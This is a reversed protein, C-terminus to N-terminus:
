PRIVERIGGRLEEGVELVAYTGPAGYRGTGTFSGPNIFLVSGIQEWRPVHTHGSVICDVQEKFERLLCDVLEYRCGMGHLLGITFSGIHIIKKHPLCTRSSGHCMNGHVAHVEKDQFVDLVSIDTLDGAHFIIEVDSFAAVARQRFEKDPRILHTDSLIGIKITM